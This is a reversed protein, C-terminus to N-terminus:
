RFAKDYEPLGSKDMEFLPDLRLRGRVGALSGPALELGMFADLNAGQWTTVGFKEANEFGFRPYYGPHGFIFVGKYGLAAAEALSHRVLAAGVGKGQWGPAVSLPGFSLVEAETGAPPVVAARTYTIQGVLEGKAFAVYALEPVYSAADRLSHLLYHEDCNPWGPRPADKPVDADWFASRVLREVEFYEDPRELRILYDM